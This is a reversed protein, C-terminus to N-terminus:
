PSVLTCKGYSIGGRGNNEVFSLDPFLQFDFQSRFLYYKKIKVREDLTVRDMKHRDCTVKGVSPAFSCRSILTGDPLEEVRNSFQFKAIQDSAYEREGDFKRTVQCSYEVALVSLSCTAAAIAAAIHRTLM